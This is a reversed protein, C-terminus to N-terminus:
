REGVSGLHLAKKDCPVSMHTTLFVLILRQNCLKLHIQYDIGSERSFSDM